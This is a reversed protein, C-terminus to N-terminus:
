FVQDVKLVTGSDLMRVVGVYRDIVKTVLAKKGYLSGNAVEKNLVKM